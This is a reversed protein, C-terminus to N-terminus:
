YFLLSRRENKIKLIFDILFSNRRFERKQIVDDIAECISKMKFCVLGASNLIPHNDVILRALLAVPRANQRITRVYAVEEFDVYARIHVRSKSKVVSKLIFVVQFTGNGAIKFERKPFNFERKPHFNIQM